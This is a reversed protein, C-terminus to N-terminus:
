HTKMQKMLVEASLSQLWCDEGRFEIDGKRTFVGQPIRLCGLIPELSEVLRREVTSTDIAQPSTSHAVTMEHEHLAIKIEVETWEGMEQQDMGDNDLNMKEADRLSVRRM